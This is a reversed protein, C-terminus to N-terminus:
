YKKHWVFSVVITAVKWMCHFLSKLYMQIIQLSSCILRFMNSITEYFAFWSYCISDFPFCILFNSGGLYWHIKIKLFRKYFWGKKTKEELKSVWIVGIYLGTSSLKCWIMMCSTPKGGIYKSSTSYSHFTKRVQLLCHSDADVSPGFGLFSCLICSRGLLISLVRFIKYCQLFFHGVSLLRCIFM